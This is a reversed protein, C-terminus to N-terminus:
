EIVLEAPTLSLTVRPITLLNAVDPLVTGSAIRKGDRFLRWKYSKGQRVRFVQLRRLTIDATSSAPM